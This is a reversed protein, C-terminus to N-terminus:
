PYYNQYQVAVNHFTRENLVRLKLVHLNFFFLCLEGKLFLYKYNEFSFGWFFLIKKKGQFLTDWAGATLTM